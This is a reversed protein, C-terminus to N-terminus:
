AMFDSFVSFGVEIPGYSMLESQLAAVAGPKAVAYASASQHMVLAGGGGSGGTNSAACHRPCFAKPAPPPPPPPPAATPACVTSGPLPVHPGHSANYIHCLGGYFASTVCRPQLQSGCQGCCEEYNDAGFSFM